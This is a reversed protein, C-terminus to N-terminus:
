GAGSLSEEAFSHSDGKLRQEEEDLAKRQEAIERLRKEKESEAPLQNVSQALKLAWDIVAGRVESPLDIISKILAKDRENLGHEEALQDLFTKEVPPNFMEGVGERLWKESVNFASCIADFNRDTLKNSGKEIESIARQKLGLKEAFNAQSLKLTERIEKVRTNM